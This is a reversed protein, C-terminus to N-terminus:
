SGGVSGRKYIGQCHADDEMGLPATVVPTMDFSDDIIERENQNTITSKGGIGTPSPVGPLDGAGGCYTAEPFEWQQIGNV